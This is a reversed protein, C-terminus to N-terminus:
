NECNLKLDVELRELQLSLPKDQRESCHADPVLPNNESLLFHVLYTVFACINKPRSICISMNICITYMNYVYQICYKYMNYVYKYM